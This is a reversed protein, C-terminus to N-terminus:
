GKLQSKPNPTASKNSQPNRIESQPNFDKINQKLRNALSSVVSPQDSLDVSCDAIRFGCDSIRLGFDAIRLQIFGFGAISFDVM